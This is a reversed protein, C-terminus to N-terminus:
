PLFAHSPPTTHRHQDKGADFQQIEGARELDEASHTSRYGTRNISTKVTASVRRWGSCCGPSPEAPSHGPPNGVGIHQDHRAPHPRSARHITRRQDLPNRRLRACCFDRSAYTRPAKQQRLGPQQLVPGGRRVPCADLTQAAIKRSSTSIRTPNVCARHDAACADARADIHRQVDQRPQIALHPPRWPAPDLVIM